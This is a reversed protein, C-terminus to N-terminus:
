VDDDMSGFILAVNHGGFGFSNSLVYDLPTPQTQGVVFNLHCAPDPTELNLLPPLTQAQLAKVVAVAQIAGAAALPHGIASKIATVPICEAKDGLALYLM